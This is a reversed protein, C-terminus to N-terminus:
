VKYASVMNIIEHVAGDCTKDSSVNFKITNEEDREVPAGWQYVWDRYVIDGNDGHRGELRRKQDQKTMELVVHVLDPGLQTRVFTRLEKTPISFAIVWDGGIRKRENTIDECMAKFKGEIDKMDYPQDHRMARHAKNGASVADLREQAIGKLRRQESVANTPQVVNPPIYPNVLNIFADGEYYVYGFMKSLTHATTSKGTGPAGSIWIFKGVNNPQIKYHNPPADAPDGIDKFLIYSKESMWEFYDLRNSMPSWFSIRKGDNSVAGKSRWNGGWLVIEVNNHAKGTVRNVEPHADGFKGFNWRVEKVSGEKGNVIKQMKVNESSVIFVYNTLGNLKYVGDIWPVSKEKAM